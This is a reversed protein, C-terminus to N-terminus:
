ETVYAVAVAGEGAGAAIITSSQAIYACEFGLREKISLAFREGAEKDDIYTIAYNLIQHKRNVKYLHKLIKKNADLSNFAIKEITGEGKSNLTIVPKLGIKKALSGLRISLRGSAIMNDLIKISVLIKTNEIDKSIVAQIAESDKGDKLAQIARWVILGQSVSNQKSDFVKVRNDFAKAATMFVNFTGSLAKSVSIVLIEDYYNLLYRFKDEVNKVSPQSSTPHVSKKKALKFLQNNTITLKDIYSDTDLLIKLHIVEVQAEDLIIGPIDAISDTMILTKYKRKYIVDQQRTMDDVKQSLITYKEELLEFLRHPLDTHIHIKVKNKWGGVILSDGLPTINRKLQSIDVKNGEILAETCYRYKNEEMIDHVRIDHDYGGTANNVAEVMTKESQGNMSSVFGKVFYAFGKAGSDVLSTNKLQLLQNTTKLVADEVSKHAKELMVQFSIGESHSKDLSEYFVKMVTLITGEVPNEVSEYAHMFGKQAALVFDSPSIENKDITIQSMGHFYQAFILGSNGKSGFIASEAVSELTEKLSPGIEAHSVISQMTSYLNNGTDADAVPFVNIKNLFLRNEMVEKAGRIFAHYINKKNINKM